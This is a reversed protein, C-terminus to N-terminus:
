AKEKTYDSAQMLWDRDADKIAVIQFGGHVDEHSIGLGHRECVAWIEALFADIRPSEVHKGLSDNWRQLPPTKNPESNM